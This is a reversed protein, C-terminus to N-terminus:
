TGKALFKALHRNLEPRFERRRKTGSIRTRSCHQAVAASLMWLDRAFISNSFTLLSTGRRGGKWCGRGSRGALPTCLLEWMKVEEAGEGPTPPPPPPPPLCDTLNGGDWESPKELTRGPLCIRIWADGSGWPRNAWPTGHGSWRRDKSKVRM